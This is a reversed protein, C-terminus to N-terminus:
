ITKLVLMLPRNLSFTAGNVAFDLMPDNSGYSFSVFSESREEFLPPVSNQRTLIQVAHPLLFAQGLADQACTAATICNSSDTFNLAEYNHQTLATVEFGSDFFTSSVLEPVNFYTEYASIRVRDVFTFPPANSILM